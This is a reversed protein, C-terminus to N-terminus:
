RGGAGRELQQIRQELRELHQRALAEGAAADAARIMRVAAAVQPSMGQVVLTKEDGFNGVIVGGYPSSTQALFPRIANAAIQANMHELRIPVVVSEIREAHDLVDDADMMRAQAPVDGRRPGALNVVSYLQQEASLQIVAFGRQFLFHNLAIELGRADLELPTQLRVSLTTPTQQFDSEQVLYNRGLWAAARDVLEHLQHEGAALEFVRSSRRGAPATEAPSHTEPTPPPTPAATQALALPSLALALALTGLIPPM